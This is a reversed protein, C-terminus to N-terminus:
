PRGEVAHRVVEELDEKTWVDGFPGKLVVRRGGIDFENRGNVLVTGCELGRRAFEEFGEETRLNFFKVRVKGGFKSAVERVARITEVHHPEEDIPYFVEILVPKGRPAREPLIIGYRKFIQRGEEGVLLSIYKEAWDRRGKTFPAAIFPLPKYPLQAILKVKEPALKEPNAKLPCSTFVVAADVKGASLFMYTTISFETEVVKPKVKEWLGLRRLAEKAHYGLSNLNPDPLGFTRLKPSALDKLSNIGAPNDKPVALVMPVYGFVTRAKPDTIGARELEGIEIEGPSIFVDGREGRKARRVLAVASDYAYYLSIQPYKRRWLDRLENFPKALGCPVFVKLPEKHAAKGWRATTKPTERKPGPKFLLLALAGAAVAVLISLIPMARRM